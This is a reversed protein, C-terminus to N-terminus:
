DCVLWKDSTNFLTALQLCVVIYALMVRVDDACHVEMSALQSTWSRSQTRSVPAEQVEPRGVDRLQQRDLPARCCM